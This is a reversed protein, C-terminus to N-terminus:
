GVISCVWNGIQHGVKVIVNTTTVVLVLTVIQNYNIKRKMTTTTKFTQLGLCVVTVFNLM